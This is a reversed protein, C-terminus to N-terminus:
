RGGPFSRFNYTFTLLVYRSLVNSRFDEIYDEAISRNVSDNQALIDYVTLRVEAAQNALFKYGISSNWYITSRNYDEGLGEYHRISADSALILKGWPTLNFGGSAWGSYYNNDLEPRISNEVISYNGRYSLRFDVNPSINSSITIGANLGINDTQNLEGDIESPTRRLSVGGNLNLNSRILDLPMSRFLMARINSSSGINDPSVFRGGRGLLIGDQLLTDQQAIWTRNGIHNKTFNLNIYAMTSSSGGPDAMRLRLSVRHDFQQDLDPNGSSLRLPNTNDIVDQLQRASPNRTGTNYNFQLNNGEGFRYRFSASPLLNRWSRSTRVEYPFIQEGDLASNQWAVGIDGNFREGRVRFSGRVRQNTVRTDFRNSLTTDILSYAGTGPDFMFADQISNERNVSPQYSVMLQAGRTIPETFSINGSFSSRDYVIDTLQNNLISNDTEGYYFSEDVQRREGNRDNINTGLNVSLTRGRKEFGHRYLINGAINYASNKSLNESDITNLLQQGDLWTLGSLMRRSKNNQFSMRPTIILSRREDITHELRANIRHNHNDSTNYANEGYIQNESYGSIYRRERNQDNVNDSLNFFYSANIRWKDTRDIYNIGSSHVSSIGRQNGVLFNRTNGGGWGGGGGGGGGGGPGGGSIGVLDEGSFNQQNVNNSMGILSIRRSGDFYNYNGGAIYRTESGYGSQARGFHGRNMGKKTVINITREENGDSFGTFRAQDSARDYVEIQDIIEAPLNRLTLLADEGFFEEGDVLVRQVREGQAQVEGNEVNFGPMRSILDEANADPNTQYSGAHFATTDGKAEVRPRRAVVQAEDLELAATKMQFDLETLHTRGLTVKENITEFGLFSIRILYEGSAVRNLRYEGEPGTTTGRVYVTDPLTFLQINAGTLPTTSEGDQATITGSISRTSQADAQNPLLFFLLIVPLLPGSHLVVSRM